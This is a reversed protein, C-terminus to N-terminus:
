KSGILNGEYELMEMDLSANVKWSLCRLDIDRTKDFKIKDTKDLKTSMVNSEMVLDSHQHHM